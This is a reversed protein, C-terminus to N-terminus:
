ENESLRVRRGRAGSLNADCYFQVNCGSVTIDKLEFDSVGLFERFDDAIKLLHERVDPQLRRDKGWLRPNLHENFKVADDLNYSDLELINM